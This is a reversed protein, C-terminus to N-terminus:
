RITSQLHNIKWVMTENKESWKGHRRNSLYCIIHIHIIGVRNGLSDQGFPHEISSFRCVNERQNRLARMWYTTSSDLPSILLAISSLNQRGWHSRDATLPVALMMATKFWLTPGLDSVVDVHLIDHMFNRVDCLKKAVGSEDDRVRRMKVREVVSIGGDRQVVAAVHLDSMVIEDHEALFSCRACHKTRHEGFDLARIEGIQQM